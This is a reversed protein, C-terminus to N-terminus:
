SSGATAAMLQPLWAVLLVHVSRMPLKPTEGGRGAEMSAGRLGKFKPSSLPFLSNEFDM